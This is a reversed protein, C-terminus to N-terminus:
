SKSIVAQQNEQSYFGFRHILKFVPEKTFCNSEDKLVQQRTFICLFLAHFRTKTSTGLLNSQCSILDWCCWKVYRLIQSSPMISAKGNSMECTHMRSYFIKSIPEMVQLIPWKYTLWATAMFAWQIELVVSLERLGRWSSKKELQTM